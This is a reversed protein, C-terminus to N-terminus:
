IYKNVYNKIIYNEFSFYFIFQCKISVLYPQIFMVWLWMCIISDRAESKKLEHCIGNFKKTCLSIYKDVTQFSWNPLIGNSFSLFLYFQYSNRQWCLLQKKQEFLFPKDYTTDNSCYSILSIFQASLLVYMDIFHFVCLLWVWKTERKSYSVGIVHIGMCVSQKCKKRRQQQQKQLSQVDLRNLKKKRM